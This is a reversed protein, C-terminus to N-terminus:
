VMHMGDIMGGYLEEETMVSWFNGSNWFSVYLEGDDIEIAQQEFGEGWGDSMQGTWYEKLIGIEDESLPQSVKCELVGLLEGDIVKVTPIASMVKEAVEKSEDFYYMLGRIHSDKNNEAVVAEHIADAYETLDSRYYNGHSQGDVYLEATLPSFLYFTEYASEDISLPEAFEGKYEQYEALHHNTGALGMETYLSEKMMSMRTEKGFAAYDIHPLLLEDVQFLGSKEVLFRGYEEDNNVDALYQFEGLHRAVNALVAFEYSDVLQVAMEFHKMENEDFRKVADCMENFSVLEEIEAIDEARPVLIDPLRLNIVNVARCEWYDLVGMRAKAKDMAYFDTPMYLNEKLGFQTEIEVVAVVEDPRDIFQPFTVGNYVEQLKFGHEVFVGYPTITTESEKLCKEAYAAFNTGLQESESLGGHEDIYLRKGVEASDAFDTLMSLGQLSFTLNIFDKITNIGECEVYAAMVRKEYESLAEIRRALYNVEDVMVVENVLSDLPIETRLFGAVKCKPIRETLGWSKLLCGLSAESAPLEVTRRKGNIYFQLKM